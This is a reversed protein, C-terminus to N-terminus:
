FIFRNGNEGSDRLKKAFHERILDIPIVERDSVRDPNNWVRFWPTDPAHTMRLLKLGGFVGYLNYIDGILKEDNGDFQPQHGPITETVAQDVYQKLRHYVDPVVPGFKWAEIDQFFLKRKSVALSWGQGYYVIKIVQLPTFLKKDDFSKQILFNAVARADYSM